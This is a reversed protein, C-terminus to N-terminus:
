ISSQHWQKTELTNWHNAANAWTKWSKGHNEWTELRTSVQLSPARAEHDAQLTWFDASFLNFSYNENYSPFGCCSFWFVYLNNLLMFISLNANSFCEVVITVIAKNPAQHISWFDEFHAWLDSVTCTSHRPHGEAVRGFLLLKRGRLSESSADM